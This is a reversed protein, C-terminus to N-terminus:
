EIQIIKTIYLITNKDKENITVIWFIYLLFLGDIIFTIVIFILEFKSIYNTLDNMDKDVTFYITGSAFSFPVNMDKLIRLNNSNGFFMNRATTLDIKMQQEFDSFMYTLELLVFDMELDLGSEDLKEGEEKCSIAMQDVFSFYTNVDSITDKNFFLAGGLGSNICFNNKENLKKVWLKTQAFHGGFYDDNECFDLNKKLRYNDYLKNMFYSPNMNTSILESKDYGKRKTFYTLYQDQHSKYEELSYYEAKFRGLIASLYSAFGIEIIKPIKELYNMSLNVAYEWTDRKKYLDFLSIILTAIFLLSLFISIYISIITNLPVIKQNTKIQELVDENEKFIKQEENLKNKNAKNMKISKSKKGKKIKNTSKAEGRLDNLVGKNNNKNLFQVMSSNNSISNNLLSGNMSNLELNNKIKQYDNILSEDQKEKNKSKGNKESSILSKDNIKNLSEDHNNSNDNLLQASNSSVLNYFFNIDKKIKELLTLNNINFEKAVKELFNIEFEKKLQNNEYNYLFVFIQRIFFIDSFNKILFIIEIGLILALMCCYIVIIKNLYTDLTKILAIILEELTEEIVPQIDYIINDLVYYIFRQNFSTEKHTREYIEHPDNVTSLLFFNESFNCSKSMTRSEQSASNLLYSFYNIEEILCSTKIKLSWDKNLNGITINKYLLQRIKTLLSNDNDNIINLQKEFSNLHNMLDIGKIALQLSIDNLGTPIDNMEYRLCQSMVVVSGIFIDSKIEELYILSSTLNLIYNFNTTAYYLKVVIIVITCAFLITLIIIYIKNFYRDKKRIEEIQDKSILSINEDDDDRNNKYNYSSSNNDYNDYRNNENLINKIVIDKRSKRPVMNGEKEKSNILNSKRENKTQIKNSGSPKIDGENISNDGLYNNNKENEWTKTKELSKFDKKNELSNDDILVVKSSPFDYDIKINLKNNFITKAKILHSNENKLNMIKSTNKEKIKKNNYSYKKKVNGGNDDTYITREYLDVIYFYITGMKKLNYVVDFNRDFSIRVMKHYFNKKSASSISAYSPRGLSDSSILNEKNEKNKLNLNIINNNSGPTITNKFQTSIAQGMTLTNFSNEMNEDFYNKFDKLQLRDSLNQLHQYWEFDLGYEEILKSFEPILKIIKDKEIKDHIVVYNKNMNELKSIDRLEYAKEYSINKFVIFADEEKKLNYINNVSHKFLEKNKKRIKEIILNKDVCFFEFFNTRIDKLMSVNFEFDEMFNRTEAIFESNEDLLFSYRNFSKNIRSYFLKENFDLGIIIFFDEYFTPYKKAVVSVGVLYGDKSKIFTNTKAFTNYSFFLFQKMMLEHQKIFKVGPFLKEHFDKDKLEHQHFGLRNSIVCSFYTINFTNNKTLTLILPHVLNFFKYGSELKASITNIDFNPNIIKRLDEPIKNLTILLFNSIIYILEASINDKNEQNLGLRTLHLIKDVNYKLEEGIKLFANTNSHKYTKIIIPNHLNKRFNFLSKLKDCSSIILQKLLALLVFYNIIETMFLNDKRYKNVAKDANSINLKNFYSHIISIKYEYLYYETIFGWKIGCKSYKGIYYLTLAYNKKMKYLYQLHIFIFHELDYIKKTKYLYEIKNIIEQEFIIQFQKETLKKKEISVHSHESNDNIIYSEKLNKKENDIDSENKTDTLEEKIENGNDKNAFINNKYDTRDKYSFPVFSSQLYDKPILLHGPCDLKKCQKVHLIIIRFLKVYNINKNKQYELFIRMYYYLGGKSIDTSNKAFLNKAFNNMSKRDKLYLFLLTLIYSNLIEILIKVFFFISSIKYGVKYIILEDISSVFAFFELYLCMNGINNPYYGFQCFCNWFNILCLFLIIVNFIIGITIQKDDNYFKTLAFFPQFSFMIIKIFIFKFNGCLIGKYLFLGRISSFMLYTFMNFVILIAVIMNVILIPFHNTSDLYDMLEPELSNAYNNQAGIKSTLGIQNYIFGFIGFLIYELFYQNFFIIVFNIYSVIKFLINELKENTGYSKEDIISTIKKYKYKMYLVCFINFLWYILVITAITMSGSFYNKHMASFDKGFLFINKLYKNLSVSDKCTVMEIIRSNVIIGLYKLFFLFYFCTDSTPFNKKLLFLSKLLYLNNKKTTTKENIEIM